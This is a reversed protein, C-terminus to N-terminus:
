LELVFLLLFINTLDYSYMMAILYQRELAEKWFMPPIFTRQNREVKLM